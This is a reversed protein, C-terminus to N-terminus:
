LEELFEKYTTKNRLKSLLLIYINGSSNIIMYSNLFKEM